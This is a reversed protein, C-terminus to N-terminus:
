IRGMLKIKLKMTMTTTTGIRRVSACDVHHTTCICAFSRHMRVFLAERLRKRLDEKSGTKKLRLQGCLDKLQAVTKRSLEEESSSGTASADDEEAHHTSQAGNDTKQLM